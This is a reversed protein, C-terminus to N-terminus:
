LSPREGRQSYSCAPPRSSTPLVSSAATTQRHQLSGGGYMYSCHQHTSVGCTRDSSFNANNSVALVVDAASPSLATVVTLRHGGRSTQLPDRGGAKVRHQRWCNCYNGHYQYVCCYYGGRWNDLYNSSDFRHHFSCLVVFRTRSPGLCPAVGVVYRSTHTSGQIM